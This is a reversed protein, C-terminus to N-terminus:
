EKAEGRGCREKGGGRGKEGGGERGAGEEIEERM